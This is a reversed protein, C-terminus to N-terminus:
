QTPRGFLRRSLHAGGFGGIGVGYVVALIYHVQSFGLLPGVVSFLTSMALAGLFAGGWPRRAIPFLAGLALGVAPGWLAYVTVLSRLEVGLYGLSRGNGAWVVVAISTFVLSVTLGSLLGKGLRVSLPEDVSTLDIM